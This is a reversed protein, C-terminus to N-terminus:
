KQIPVCKAGEKEIIQLAIQFEEPYQEMLQKIWDSTTQPLTRGSFCYQISAAASVPPPIQLYQKDKMILCLARLIFDFSKELNDKQTLCEFAPKADNFHNFPLDIDMDWDIANLLHIECLAIKKMEESTLETLTYDRDGFVQKVGNLTIKQSIKMICKSIAAFVIKMSRYTDEIKCALFLASTMLLYLPEDAHCPDDFYKHLLVFASAICPSVPLNLEMRSYSIAIWSYQRQKDSWKKANQM